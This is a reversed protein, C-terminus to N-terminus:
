LFLKIWEIFDKPIVFAKGAVFSSLALDYMPRDSKLRDIRIATSGNQETFEYHEIEILVPKDEGKPGLILTIKKSESDVHLDLMRGGATTTIYNLAKRAAFDKGMTALKSLGFM